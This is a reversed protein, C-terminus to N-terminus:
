AYSCMGPREVDSGYNRWFNDAKALRFADEKAM